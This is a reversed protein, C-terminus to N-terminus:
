LARKLQNTDWGYFGLIDRAATARDTSVDGDRDLVVGLSGSVTGVAATRFDDDVWMVVLREQADSVPILEGTAGERYVGAIEPFGDSTVVLQGDEPTYTVTIAAKRRQQFSSAVIWNGSFEEASFRTTAGIPASQNRYSGDEASCGALVLGLLAVPVMHRQWLMM